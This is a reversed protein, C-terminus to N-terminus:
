GLASFPRCFDFEQWSLGPLDKQRALSRNRNLLGQEDRTHDAMVRRRDESAM